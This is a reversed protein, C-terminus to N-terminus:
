GIMGMNDDVLGPLTPLKVFHWDLGELLVLEIAVMM